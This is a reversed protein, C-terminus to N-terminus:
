KMLCTLRTIVEAHSDKIASMGGKGSERQRRSVHTINWPWTYVTPTEIQLIKGIRNINFAAAHETSRHQDQYLGAYLCHSHVNPWLLLM